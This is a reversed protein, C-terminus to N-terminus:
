RVRIDGQGEQIDENVDISDVKSLITLKKM